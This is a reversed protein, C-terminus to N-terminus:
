FNYNYGLTGTFELFNNNNGTKSDRNLVILSLNFNHKKAHTYSNNVRFNVVRTVMDSNAYSNNLSSSVSARLKKELYSKNVAVTPGLTTSRIASMENLNGNFAVTISLDQPAMSITYSTNLNYFVSGSHSQVGAQKDSAVQCALNMNIFQRLDKDNSLAYNANLNANQSLQTFRLTDLNDFPTLSNIDIFQSRIHTFTQFSSYSANLNLRESANYGVNVSGVMRRMDSMKDDNLNNRQTGANVALSVKGKFFSTATNMTINELDNNFFYAGLTRYEPEIREYNVGVIFIGANYSIGSKFANYYSSSARHRYLPGAYSFANRQERRGMDSRIDRTLASSAFEMKLMLRQAIAKGANIGLVLNEEPLVEANGPIFPVSMEDDYARFLILDVFDNGSGVGVKFGMGMRRYTPNMIGNLTDAAVQQNLRGYMASFRFIGPPALDVGVGRFIHGSLTYPSFTMTNYGIHGTVWKYTPSIGYQNFPQQFASNQNSYSFSLPVAWGYIDFNLNGSLFYNYPDRRSDLGSAAYFIQNTSIGGNVKIPSGQGISELNQAMLMPLIGLNFVLVM